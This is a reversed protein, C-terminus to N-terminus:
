ELMSASGSISSRVHQILVREDLDDNPTQRLRRAARGMSEFIPKRQYLLADADKAVVVFGAFAIM